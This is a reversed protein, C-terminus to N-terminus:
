QTKRKRRMEELEEKIYILWHEVIDPFKTNIYKTTSNSAENLQHYTVINGQNHILISIKQNLDYGNDNDDETHKHLIAQLLGNNYRFIIGHKVKVYKIIYIFPTKIENRNIPYTKTICHQLISCKKNLDRIETDNGFYSFYKSKDNLPPKAIIQLCKWKKKTDIYWITNKLGGSLDLMHTGDIFYMICAGSNYIYFLGYMSYRIYKVVFFLPHLIEANDKEFNDLERTNLKSYILDIFHHNNKKNKVVVNPILDTCVTNTAGINININSNSNTTANTTVNTTTTANINSNTPANTTVNTTANINSNTTTTTLSLTEDGGVATTTTQYLSKLWEFTIITDVTPRILSDCILISKIFTKSEESRSTDLQPFSYIVNRIKKYTENVSSTEFPPCNFLLTYIIVGFAWVDSKFTANSYVIMEPSLYNPTGCKYKTFEYSYKSLGFDCIKLDFKTSYEEFEENSIVCKNVISTLIDINSLLVNKMTLDQHVINLKHLFNLAHLLRIGILKCFDESINSLKHRLHFTYLNVGNIYEMFIYNVNNYSTDSIYKIIFPNPTSSLHKLLEVEKKFCEIERNHARNTNQDKNKMIKCAINVNESDNISATYVTSFQGFGIKSRIKYGAVITNTYLIENNKSKTLTMTSRHSSPIRGVCIEDSSISSNNISLSSM